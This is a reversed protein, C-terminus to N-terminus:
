TTGDGDAGSGECPPVHERCEGRPSRVHGAINFLHWHLELPSGLGNSFVIFKFYISRIKGHLNKLIHTRAMRRLAALMYGDSSSVLKHQNCKSQGQAVIEMEVM